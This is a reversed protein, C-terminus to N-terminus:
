RRKRNPLGIDTQDILVDESCFRRRQFVSDAVGGDDEKTSNEEQKKLPYEGYATRLIM